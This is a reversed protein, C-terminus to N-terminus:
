ALEPESCGAELQRECPANAYACDKMTNRAKIIRAKAIAGKDHFKVRDASVVQVSGAQNKSISGVIKLANEQARRVKEPDDSCSDLLVRVKYLFRMDRMLRPPMPTRKGKATM